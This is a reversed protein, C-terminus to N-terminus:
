EGKATEFYCRIGHKAAVTQLRYAFRRDKSWDHSLLIVAPQKGTVEAYYLSQGISEAWKEAWDVEYAYTDDVLDPRTRDWLIVTSDANYKTALWETESREDARAALACLAFAVFLVFWLTLWLAEIKHKRKM